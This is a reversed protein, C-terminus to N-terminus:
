GLDVALLRDLTRRGWASMVPNSEAYYWVLGMAQQFSWAMGRLWQVDSCRLTERLVQRPRDDLLHWAAVLDLAPDAAAYQGTDLVGSLRGDQVLVNAPTLDGHSMADPDVEPLARLKEWMSRLRAVDLLGRSREFCEAMWVDHDPLHGGRGSGSFQRGNTDARRLSALLAALDRAFRTSTSADNVTADQGSLWTQISWPLPYAHGPEGLAVPEPAAVPSVTAFEAAAASEARLEDRAASPDQARLPFRAALDPGIRFIANVTGTTEVERMPLSRWQPFQEDVLARVVQEDVVLQGAHMM